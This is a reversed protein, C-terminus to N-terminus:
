PSVRADGIRDAAAGPGGRGAPQGRGSPVAGRGVAGGPFGRGGFGPMEMPTYDGPPEFLAAPQTGMLVNTFDTTYGDADEIRVPFRLDAAIWVTEREGDRVYAWKRTARGNVSETGLNECQTVEGSSCPNAPDMTDAGPASFPM